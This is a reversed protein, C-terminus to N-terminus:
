HQLKLEMGLLLEMVKVQQLLGMVRLFELVKVQQLLGMVLEKEM